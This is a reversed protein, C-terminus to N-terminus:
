YVEIAEATRGEALLDRIGADSLQAGNKEKSKPMLYLRLLTFIAFLLGSMVFAILLYMGLRLWM